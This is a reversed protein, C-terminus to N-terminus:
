FYTRLFIAPSLGVSAFESDGADRSGSGTTTARHIWSIRVLGTHAAISFRRRTFYELGFSFEAEAGADTRTETTGTPSHLRSRGYSGRVRVDWYPSFEESARTFRRFGPGALFKISNAGSTLVPTPEFRFEDDRGSVSLDLLWASRESRGRILSVEAGGKFVGAGIGWKSEIDAAGAFSVGLVTLAWVASMGLAVCSARGSRVSGRAGM